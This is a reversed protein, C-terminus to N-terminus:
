QKKGRRAKIKRAGEKTYKRKSQTKGDALTISSLRQSSRPTNKRKVTKTKNRKVPEDSLAKDITAATAVVSLLKSSRNNVVKTPMRGMFKDDIGQLVSQFDVSDIMSKRGAVDLTKFKAKQSKSLSDFRMRQEGGGFTVQKEDRWARRGAEDMAGLKKDLAAKKDALYLAGEIVGVFAASAPIAAATAKGAAFMAARTGGKRAAWAAFPSSSAAWGVTQGTMDASKSVAVGKGAIKTATKVTAKSAVTSFLTGFGMSAVLKPLGLVGRLTAKGVSKSAKAAMKPTKKVTAMNPNFGYTALQTGIQSGFGVVDATNDSAGLAKASAKSVQGVVIGAIVSKGLRKAEVKLGVKLRQRDARALASTKNRLYNNQEARANMQRLSVDLARKGYSVARTRKPKALQKPKTEFGMGGLGTRAIAAARWNKMPTNKLPKLNRNGM